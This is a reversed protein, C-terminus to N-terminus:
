HKVKLVDIIAKKFDSSISYFHVGDVEAINSNERFSFNILINQSKIERVLITYRKGQVKPLENIYKEYSYNNIKDLNAFSNVILKAIDDNEIPIYITQNGKEGWSDAEIAIPKKFDSWRIGFDTLNGNPFTLPNYLYKSKILTSITIIIL